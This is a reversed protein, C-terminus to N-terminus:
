WVSVRGRHEPWGCIFGQIRGLSAFGCQQSYQLCEQYICGKIPWALASTKAHMAGSFFVFKASKMIIEFPIKDESQCPHFLLKIYFHQEGALVNLFGRKADNIFTNTPNLVKFKRIFFSTERLSKSIFVDCLLERLCSSNPPLYAWINRKAHCYM